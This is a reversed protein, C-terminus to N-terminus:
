VKELFSIDPKSIVGAEEMAQKLRDSQFYNQANEQNDWEFLLVMKNPNDLTQFIQASKEGATKRMETASDFAAKWKKYDQVEHGNVLLYTM